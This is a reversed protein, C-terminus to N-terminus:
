YRINGHVIDNTTYVSEEGYTVLTEYVWFGATCGLAFVAIRVVWTVVCGSEENQKRKRVEKRREKERIEENFELIEKIQDKMKNMDSKEETQRSVEEEPKIQNPLTQMSVNM